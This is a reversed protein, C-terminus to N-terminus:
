KTSIFIAHQLWETIFYLQFYLFDILVSCVHMCFLVFDIEGSECLLISQIIKM